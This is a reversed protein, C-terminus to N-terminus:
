MTVLHGIRVLPGDLELGLRGDLRRMQQQRHFNWRAKLTLTGGADTWTTTLEAPKLM